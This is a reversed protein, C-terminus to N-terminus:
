RMASVARFHQLTDSAHRFRAVRGAADFHWIHVEDREVIPAGTSTVRGDLDVLAVVLNGEALVANVRFREIQLGAGLAQFFALVGAKGQRPALWPIAAHTEASYAYEWVVDDSMVALIAPIDRQGFSAYVHQIIQIPSM